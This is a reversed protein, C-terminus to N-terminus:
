KKVIITKSLTYDSIRIHCLYMGNSYNSANWNVKQDGESQEGEFITNLFKGEISYLDIKVKTEKGLHYSINVDGRNPNPSVLVEIKENILNTLGLSFISYEYRQIISCNWSYTTGNILHLNMVNGTFTINRVDILNYASQTGDNFYFYVSQAQGSTLSFGLLITAWIKGAKQKM